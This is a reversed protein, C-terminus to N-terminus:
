AAAEWGYLERLVVAHFADPLLAVSGNPAIVTGYFQQKPIPNECIHLVDFRM